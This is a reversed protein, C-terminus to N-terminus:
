RTKYRGVIVKIQTNRVDGIIVKISVLKLMLRSYFLYYYYARFINLLGQTTQQNGLHVNKNSVELRLPEEM